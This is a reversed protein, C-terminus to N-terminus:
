LPSIRNDVSALRWVDAPLADRGRTVRGRCPHDLYIMAAAM